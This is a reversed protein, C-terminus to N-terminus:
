RLMTMTGLSVVDSEKGLDIFIVASPFSVGQADTLAPQVAAPTYFPGASLTRMSWASTSYKRTDAQFDLLTSGAGCLFAGPKLFSFATHTGRTNEVGMVAAAAAKM